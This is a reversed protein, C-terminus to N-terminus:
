QVWHSYTVDQRLPRESLAGVNVMSVVRYVAIQVATGIGLPHSSIILVAVQARVAQPCGAFSFNACRVPCHVGQVCLSGKCSCKEISM